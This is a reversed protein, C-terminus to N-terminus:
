AGRVARGHKGGLTLTYGLGFLLFNNAGLVWLVQGLNAHWLTIALLLLPIDAVLLWAFRTFHVALNYQVLMYMLALPSIALGFRRALALTDPNLFRAGFLTLIVWKVLVWAAVVACALAAATVLLSKDLLARTDEAQAHGASAKPLLVQAIALPLFLFAKGVVSAASYYGAALPPFFHKVLIVDLSAIVAFAGFAVLVPLGYRYLQPLALEGAPVPPQRRLGRLPAFSLLLAATGSLAGALLGGAVSFGLTFFAAGLALRLLADSILNLGLQGFEQLGQLAGRVVSLLLSVLSAAGVALLPVASKLKFFGVWYASTAWLALALAAGLAGVRLLIQLLLSAMRDFRRTLEEVAFTKAVVTQIAQSPIALLTVVAVLSVLSGYDEPGLMRSALAHFLYSCANVAMVMLFLLGSAHLLGPKRSAM